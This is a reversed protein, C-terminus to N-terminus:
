CYAASDTALKQAAAYQQTSVKGQLALDNMEKTAASNNKVANTYNKLNDGMEKLEKQSLGSIISKQSFASKITKSLSMLKDKIGKLASEGVHWLSGWIGKQQQLSTNFVSLAKEGLHLATILMGIKAVGGFDGFSDTIKNITTLFATLIDVGKKIVNSNMIDM